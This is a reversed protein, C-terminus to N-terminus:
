TLSRRTLPKMRGRFEYRVFAGINTTRAYTARGIRTLDVGPGFQWRHVQVGIRVRQTFSYQDAAATPM